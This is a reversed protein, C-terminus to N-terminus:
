NELKSEYIKNIEEEIEKEIPSAEPALELAELFYELAKEPMQKKQYAIGMFYLVNYKESFDPEIEFVKNWEILAKDYDKQIAYLYALDIYAKTFKPDLYIAHKIEKEAKQYNGSQTYSLGLNRYINRDNFYYKTRQLIKQAEDQIDLHYYTSGLGHLIRGNSPDLRAAYKFDKLADNYNQNEYDKMGKFYHIEASYPKVVFIGILFVALLLTLIIIINKIMQNTNIKIRIINKKDVENIEFGSIYVVTLGLFIFFTSGLVPVHYPFTFLSHILFSTIGMLLSFVIIKDQNNQNNKLYKLALSYFVFFISLFIGLGVIGLEAGMQLYENHAEAAKGSYKIYDPYKQLFVAQYDLYNMKFTGIGSGLLPKDKIMNITTNWKLLHMNLSPDQEDFTSIARETVTIASKNLSNDTSYIMTIVLFTVLVLFLWKNNEQFLKLFNFKIIIYIAFILTLSISIWIGRSQCIMLTIYLVSLLLYYIFKNRREKELLFYSFVVPLIIALYNSVCNKQGITSTIQNLETFYPDLGYYQILAYVSVLFSTIFFIKIFSDFEKKQKIVNIVIFYLIIYSIFILYDGFSVRTANSILLSLTLIIIFLYIPLNLKNRKWVIEESSLIKM